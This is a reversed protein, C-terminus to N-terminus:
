QLYDPHVAPVYASFDNDGWFVYVPQLYPQYVDPDLYALFMKKITVDTQSEQFKMFYAGGAQLKAFAEEGTILPYIGIKNQDTEYFKVQARLIKFGDNTFMMIVYNQSNLNLPSVTPFNDIDPRFFDVEVMNAQSSDDIRTMTQDQPSYSFFVTNTKGQTLEQPYRDVLILFDKAKQESEEKEPPRVNNFLDPEDTFRYEYTFNYNQIDISLRQKGSDFEAMNDTKTHKVIETDFGLSKATLYIKNLYGFSVQGTQFQFIKATDTATIPTGEITDFVYNIQASPSALDNIIPVSIKDFIPNIMIRASQPAPPNLMIMLKILYFFILFLLGVLIVVPMYKRSYFSVETLTM